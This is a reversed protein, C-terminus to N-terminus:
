LIDAEDKKWRRSKSRCYAKPHESRRTTPDFGWMKRKARNAEQQLKKSLKKEPKQICAIKVNREKQIDKSHQKM